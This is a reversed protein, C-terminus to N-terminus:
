GAYRVPASGDLLVTRTSDTVLTLAKRPAFREIAQAHARAVRRGCRLEAAILDAVGRLKLATLVGRSDLEAFALRQTHVLPGLQTQIAQEVARLDAVALASRSGYNWGGDKCRLSLIMRQGLDVRRALSPRSINHSAAVQLAVIAHATPEIWSTANPRWPWALLLPDRDLSAPPLVKSVVKALWDDAETGHIQLLYDVGRTAAGVEGALSALTVGLATTWSASFVAGAPRFGGDANQWALVLDMAKRCAPNGQLALIAYATPELWSQKGPFYGWGGDPNQNRVLFEHRSRLYVSEM